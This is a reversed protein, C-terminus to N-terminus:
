TYQKYSNLKNQMRKNERDWWLEVDPLSESLKENIYTVHDGGDISSYSIFYQIKM